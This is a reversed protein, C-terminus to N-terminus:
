GTSSATPTNNDSPCRRLQSIHHPVGDVNISTNSNIGTVNGQIWPKDCRCVAPRMFVQDGTSFESVSSSSERNEIREWPLKSKYKYIQNHPISSDCLGEKPSSNYWYIAEETTINSRAVIRKITRHSREVIGNGCPRNACRYIIHVGWLECWHSLTESRFARANDMLIEAPPGREFFITQLARTIENVTGEKLKKWIM